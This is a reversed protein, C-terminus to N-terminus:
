KKCIAELVEPTAVASAGTMLLQKKHKDYRLKVRCPQMTTAKQRWTGVNVQIGQKNAAVQIDSATRSYDVSAAPIAILGTFSLVISPVALYDTKVHMGLFLGGAALAVIGLIIIWGM